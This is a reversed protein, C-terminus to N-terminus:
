AVESLDSVTGIVEGSLMITWGDCWYTELAVWGDPHDMTRCGAHSISRVTWDKRAM